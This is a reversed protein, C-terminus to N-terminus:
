RNQEQLYLLRNLGETNLVPNGNADVEALRKKVFDSGDDSDKMIYIGTPVYDINYQSILRQGQASRSSIWYINAQNNIHASLEDYIAECDTCGFKYFIVICGSLNDPLEDEVPTNAIGTYLQKITMNTTYAGHSVAIQNSVGLTILLITNICVAAIAIKTIVYRQKKAFLIAIIIALLIIIALILVLSKITIFDFM